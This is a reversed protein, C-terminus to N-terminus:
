SSIGLWNLEGKKHRSLRLGEEVLAFRYIYDSGIVELHITPTSCKAIRIDTRIGKSDLWTFMKEMAIKLNRHRSEKEDLDRDMIYAFSHLAVIQITAAELRDDLRDYSFVDFAFISKLTENEILQVEM